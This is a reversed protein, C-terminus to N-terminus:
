RVPGQEWDGCWHTHSIHPYRPHYPDKIIVPAHRRCEDPYNHSEPFAFKCTGCCPARNNFEAIRSLEWVRRHVDIGEANEWGPAYSM